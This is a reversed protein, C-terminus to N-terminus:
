TPNTAMITRKQISIYSSICEMLFLDFMVTPLRKSMEVSVWISKWTAKLVMALTWQTRRLVLSCVSFNLNDAFHLAVYLLVSTNFAATTLLIELFYQLPFPKISFIHQRFLSCCHIKGSKQTELQQFAIFQLVAQM